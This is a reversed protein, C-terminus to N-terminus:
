RVYQKKLSFFISILSIFFFKKLSFFRNRTASDKKMTTLAQPLLFVESDPLMTLVGEVVV